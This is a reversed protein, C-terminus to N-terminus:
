QNLNVSVMRVHTMEEVAYRVGERGLGSQKVGGYPMHDVRFSPPGNVVVGGFDLRRVAQLAKYINQTFIGVQLGYETDNAMRLADDFDDFPVLCVVPGFVEQRMVKMDLTVNTLVTPYYLPGERRGGTLVRAGQTVAENVWAEIREAERIDILPGVDVQPDLPDGVRQAMAAAALREAFVDFVQRHVFIRQASICVQGSCAFASTCAQPVAKALDADADVVIASNNGLELTVKKIGARAVIRRGVEVSGTFTIKAVRPDAVLPEGVVPGYGPLVNLVGPPLGCEMLVEAMRLATLPTQEAPKLVVTCGAALAPAVKHAVLNLPFNFPTIAAVVGVPVRLYFGFWGEGSPHADLPVTEGHIRRAEEAAFQFTQVARDVEALAYKWAKGCETAILRAFEERLEQIRRSAHALVQARRYAPMDRYPSFAAQAAAVARDVEAPGAAAVSGTEQGTYKNFVTIRDGTEEWRGDILVGYHPLTATEM